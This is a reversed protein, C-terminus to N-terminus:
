GREDRYLALAARNAAMTAEMVRTAIALHEDWKAILQDLHAAVQQFHPAVTTTLTLQSHFEAIARDYNDFIDQWRQTREDHTM